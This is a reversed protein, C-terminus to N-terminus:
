NEKFKKNNEALEDFTVPTYNNIEASANLANEM